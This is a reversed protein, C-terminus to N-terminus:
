CAQEQVIVHRTRELYRSRQTIKPRKLTPMRKKQKVRCGILYPLVRMFENKNLTPMIM